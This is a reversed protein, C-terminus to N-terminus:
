EEVKESKLWKMLGYDSATWQQGIRPAQLIIFHALEEDTLTFLWERNTMKGSRKHKLQSDDFKFSLVFPPRAGQRYVLIKGDQLGEQELSDLDVSGDEVCLINVEKM